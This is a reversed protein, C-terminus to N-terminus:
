GEREKLKESLTAFGVALYNLGFFNTPFEYYMEINQDNLERKMFEDRLKTAEAQYKSAYMQQTDSSHRTAEQSSKKFDEFTFNPQSSKRDETFNFLNRSLEESRRILEADELLYGKRKKNFDKIHKKINRIADLLNSLGTVVGFFWPIGLLMTGVWSGQIWNWVETSDM